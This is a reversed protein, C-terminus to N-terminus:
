AHKNTMVDNIVDSFRCFLVGFSAPRRLSRYANTRLLHVSIRKNFRIKLNKKRNRVLTEDLIIGLLSVPLM